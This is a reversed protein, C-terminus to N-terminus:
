RRPSAGDPAVGPQPAAGPLGDLVRQLDGCFLDAHAGALKFGLDVFKRAQDVHGLQAAARALHLSARAETTSTFRRLLDVPEEVALSSRLTQANGFFAAQTATIEAVLTRFLADSMEWPWEEGVRRRLICEYEKLTTLDANCEAPIFVPQAGFNVYFVGGAPSGQFNIVFVFDGDTKRYNQGSGRFGLARIVPGVKKLVEKV